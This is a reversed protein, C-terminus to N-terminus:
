LVILCFFNNGKFLDRLPELVKLKMREPLGGVNHHTKITTSPGKYSVSEIVDPYLTGIVQLLLTGEVPINKKQIAEEFVDIFLGGIIKRKKEPDTVGKLAAFFRSSADICELSISPFSQKLAHMTETAENKRLLGTDIFFAHFNSGIARHLLAAAVTSDVGGSLAGVVPRNGIQQQLQKIQQPLFWHMCWTLELRCVRQLFNTLLSVGCASHTVEPHFQLTYVGLSPSAAAVYRCTSTSALATFSSPLQEVKDGHSMWVPVEPGKVGFFLDGLSPPAAAHAAPVQWPDGTAEAAADAAQTAATAAAAAAAADMLCPDEPLPCLSIMTKGFERPGEGVIRGGLQYVIEQMGYCIGLMPVQKQQLLNWVDRRIHPADAEYVSAPGGSLVVAAPRAASIEILRSFQSGFDLVLVIHKSPRNNGEDMGNKISSVTM